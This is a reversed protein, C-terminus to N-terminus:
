VNVTVAVFESPVPGAEAGELETDGPATGAAGVATVAAVAPGPETVTDHLAGPELEDIVEYVTVGNTPDVAPVGTVTLPEGGAVDVVNLASVLPVV